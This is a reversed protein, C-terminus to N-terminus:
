TTAQLSLKSGIVQTIRHSGPKTAATGFAVAQWSSGRYQVTTTGDPMWSDVHVIAGIDMNVDSNANAPAAAAAEKSSKLFHWALASGGGVAAAMAIQVTSSLGFSAAAAAAVLGFAFMLLYFTGTALEAM